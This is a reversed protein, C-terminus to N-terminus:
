KGRKRASAVGYRKHAAAECRKRRKRRKDKHCRRLAQALQQKRSTTKSKMAGAADPAVNGQGTFTASSPAGFVEPQPNPAARCREATTCEPPQQVAGPLCPSANTCEHADYVDYAEDFDQSPSLKATTLFFVDGGTESADLFASEQASEGSSILRVCGGSRASYSALSSTCDGVGPPEYEYVDWTGNVDRPSLADPSDFFLRGTNSLYRSQYLAGVLRYPTWAPVSAALREGEDEGGRVVSAETVQVGIPRGGTPDCSACVLKGAGENAAADYLYLEADPRGNLADHNDYGTPQGYSLFALWQGNPSVRATMGALDGRQDVGWDRYDEGSLV